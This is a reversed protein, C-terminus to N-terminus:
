IFNDTSYICTGQTVSADIGKSGSGTWTASGIMDPTFTVTASNSVLMVGPTSIVASNDVVGVIPVRIVSDSRIEKPWNTITWTASDSTGTGFAFYVTVIDGNKRWHVVGSPDSSFGTHTPTFTGGFEQRETATLTVSQPRGGAIQITGVFQRKQEAM